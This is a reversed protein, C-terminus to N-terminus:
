PWEKGNLKQQVGFARGRVDMWQMKSARFNLPALWAQRWMFALGAGSISEYQEPHM